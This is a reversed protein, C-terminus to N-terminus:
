KTGREGRGHYVPVIIINFIIHITNAMLIYNYSLVAYTELLAFAM